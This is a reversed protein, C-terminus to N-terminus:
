SASTRRFVLATERSRTEWQWKFITLNPVKRLSEIENFAAVLVSAMRANSAKM